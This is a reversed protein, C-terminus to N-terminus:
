YFYLGYGPEPELAKQPFFERNDASILEVNAGTLNINSPVISLNKVTTEQIVNSVSVSGTIAEYILKRTLM